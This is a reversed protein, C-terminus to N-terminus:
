LPLSVAVKTGGTAVGNVRLVGGYRRVARRLAATGYGDERRAGVGIGGDTVTLLLRNRRTVTVRVALQCPGAHKAANVLAERAARAMLNLAPRSMRNAADDAAPAIELAVPRAFEEEVSGVLTALRDSLRDQSAQSNQEMVERTATDARLLLDRGRQVNAVAGNPVGPLELAFDLSLRAAFLLQAVHDHLEDAIRQREAVRASQALQRQYRETAWALGALHAMRSLAACDDRDFAEGGTRLTSLTAVQEGGLLVPVHASSWASQGARRAGVGYARPSTAERAQRVVMSELYSREPGRRRILPAADIPALVIMSGELAACLSDLASGLFDQLDRGSAINIAVESFIEELRQRRLLTHRMRAVRVGVAIRPGLRAASQLDRLTFDTPKNIVQLVGVRRSGVDLPVELLREIGFAEVHDQLVGADAPAHNTLYPQRTAFVRAASSGWDQAAHAPPLQEISGGFAGPVPRLLQRVDDWVLVAFRTTGLAAGLERAVARNFDEFGGREMDWIGLVDAEPDGAAAPDLQRAHRRAGSAIAAQRAFSGALSENKFGPGRHQLACIAAAGITPVVAEKYLAVRFGPVVPLRADAPRSIAACAKLVREVEDPSLGDVDLVRPDGDSSRDTVLVADAALATRAASAISSDAAADTHTAPADVLRIV